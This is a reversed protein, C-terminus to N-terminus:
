QMSLTGINGSADSIATFDFEQISFDENKFPLTLKSSYCANLHINMQHGNYPLSLECQFSPAYGMLQNTLAIKSASTSTATYEYSILANGTESANFTYVGTSVNVAYQGVTPGTSVRTLAIGTTQYQVGLDTLFTGTSPPAITVTAAFAHVENDSTAQIGATPTLGFFISGFAAASFNAAKAKFTKKAKGRGFAVPDQYAGYLTKEDFSFDGQVEQLVALQVPTPNTVAVGAATTLPVGYLTGVGFVIM